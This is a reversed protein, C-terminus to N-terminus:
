PVGVKRREANREIEDKVDTPSNWTGDCCVFLRKM